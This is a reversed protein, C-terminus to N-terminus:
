RLLSEEIRQIPLLVDELQRLPLVYSWLFNFVHIGLAFKHSLAEYITLSDKKRFQKTSYKSLEKGM